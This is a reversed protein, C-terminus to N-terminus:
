WARAFKSGRGSGLIDGVFSDGVNRPPSPYSLTHILKRVLLKALFHVKWQIHRIPLLPLLSLLLPPSPTPVDPPMPTPAAM